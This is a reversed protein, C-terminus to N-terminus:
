NFLIGQLGSPAVGVLLQGPQQQDRLKQISPLLTNILIAIIAIVVLGMPQDGAPPVIGGGGSPDYPMARYGQPLTKGFATRWLGGFDFTSWRSPALQTSDIFLQRGAPTSVLFAYPHGPVPTLPGFRQQLTTRDKAALPISGPSLTSAALNSSPFRTIAM